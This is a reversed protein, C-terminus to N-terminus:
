ECKLLIEETCFGIKSCKESRPNTNERKERERKLTRVDDASGIRKYKEVCMLTMSEDEKKGNSEKFIQEKGRPKHTHTHTNAKKTQLVLFVM